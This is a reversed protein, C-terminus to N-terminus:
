KAPFIQMPMVDRFIYVPHELISPFFFIFIKWELSRKLLLFKPKHFNVLNSNLSNQISWNKKIFFRVFFILFDSDEIINIFIYVPHELISPFFFIFIKWELSRKLLLFKPKYFNVLNSNLSNQISWNQRIFFFDSDEIINIFIYVPHELISPFFFIFIKWELSRKLLLFKPKHFNVLDSNLSNQISWNKRIFFRVFFILFDSDKIINIFIYVSDELISPFFFYINKM